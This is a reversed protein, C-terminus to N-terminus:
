NAGARAPMPFHTSEVAALFPSCAHQFTHHASSTYWSTGASPHLSLISGTLLSCRIQLAPSPTPPYPLTSACIATVILVILFAHLVPVVSASIATVINKLSKLKGLLRLMRFARLARVSRIVNIPLKNSSVALAFLSLTITIIDFINWGDRLFAPIPRCLANFLLEATFVVTFVIDLHELYEGIATLDGSDDYISDVMQSEATNVVFNQPLM